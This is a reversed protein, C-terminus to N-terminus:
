QNKHDDFIKSADKLNIKMKAGMLSFDQLKKNTKVAFRQFAHSNALSEVLIENVVYSVARYIFGGGAM